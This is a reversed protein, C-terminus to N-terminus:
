NGLSTLIVFHLHHEYLRKWKKGFRIKDLNILTGGGFLSTNRPIKKLFQLPPTVNILIKVKFRWLRFKTPQYHLFLKLADDDVASSTQTEGTGV